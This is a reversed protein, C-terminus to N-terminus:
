LIASKNFHFQYEKTIELNNLKKANLEERKLVQPKKGNGGFLAQGM